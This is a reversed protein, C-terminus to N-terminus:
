PGGPPQDRHDGASADRHESWTQSGAISVRVWTSNPTAIVITM